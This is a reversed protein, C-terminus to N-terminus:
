YAPTDDWVEEQKKIRQLTPAKECESREVEGLFMFWQPPESVWGKAIAKLYTKQHEDDRWPAFALYADIDQTGKELREHLLYLRALRFVEFLALDNAARRIGAIREAEDVTLNTRRGETEIIVAALVPLVLAADEDKMPRYLDSPGSSPSTAGIRRRITREHPILSGGFEQQLQRYIQPAIWDRDILERMREEVLGDQKSRRPTM